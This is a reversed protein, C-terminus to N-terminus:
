LRAFQQQQQVNGSGWVLHKDDLPSNLYMERDPLYDSLPMWPPTKGSKPALHRSRLVYGPGRENYATDIEVGAVRVIGDVQEARAASSTLSPYDPGRPICFADDSHQAFLRKIIRCVYGSILDAKLTWSAQFYGTIYAFNPVDTLM